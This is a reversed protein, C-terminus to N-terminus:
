HHISAMRHIDCLQFKQFFDNILHGIAHIADIGLAANEKPTFAGLADTAVGGFFHYALVAEFAAEVVDVFFAGVQALGHAGQHSGDEVALGAFFHYPQFISFAFADGDQYVGLGKELAADGDSRDLIEM